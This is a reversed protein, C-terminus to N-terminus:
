FFFNELFNSSKELGIAKSKKWFRGRLFTKIGELFSKKRSVKNM